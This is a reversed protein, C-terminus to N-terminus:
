DRRTEILKGDKFIYTIHQDDYIWVETVSGAYDERRRATPWGEHRYVGLRDGELLLRLRAYRVQKREKASHVPVTVTYQVLRTTMTVEGPDVEGVGVRELMEDLERRISADADPTGLFLVASFAPLVLRFVRRPAPM